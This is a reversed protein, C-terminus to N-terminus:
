RHEKALDIREAACGTPLSEATRDVGLSAKVAHVDTPADCFVVWLWERHPSDDLEFAVDLAVARGAPADVTRATTAQPYVAEVVDGDVDFVAVFGDNARTYSIELVDGPSVTDEATMVFTRTGRRVLVDVSSGGKLRTAVKFGEPPPLPSSSPLAARDLVWWGLLVAAALTGITAVFVGWRVNSPPEAALQPLEARLDLASRRLLTIRQECQDCEAAHAEISEVAEAGLEGALMRDIRLDSVCPTTSENM